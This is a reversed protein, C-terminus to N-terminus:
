PLWVGSGDFRYNTGGVNVVTNEAMAGDAKLYYWITGSQLWGTKMTGNGNLFYWTSGDKIWGTRMAGTEKDMFYWQGGVSIWGTMMQGGAPNLYYWAGGQNLWGTQMAGSGSLFYWISGDKIWGTKMACTEQDFYYWAGGVFQWGTVAKCSGDFYYWTGGFSQWQGCLAYGAGNFYYWQGDIKEWQNVPYSGDALRYWWGNQDSRWKGAEPQPDPQPQPEPEPEEKEKLGLITNSLRIKAIEVESQLAEEDAYVTEAKQLADQLSAISEPTYKGAQELATKAEAIKEQLSSKEAPQLSKVTYIISIGDQYPQGDIQDLVAYYAEEGEKATFTHTDETTYNTDALQATIEKGIDYSSIRFEVVGNKDSAKASFVGEEANSFQLKVGSIPRGKADLINAKFVGSECTAPAAPKVPILYGLVENLKKVQENIQAQTVDEQEYLRAAKELEQTFLDFGSEYDEAKLGSCDDLLKKLQNKNGKNVLHNRKELLATRAQEVATEDAEPDEYVQLAAAYQDEYAKWSTNTYYSARHSEKMNLEERLAAKNPFIKLGAFAHELAAIAANIEEQTKGAAAAKEGAEAATELAQFTSPIYEAKNLTKTKALKEKLVTPDPKRTATSKEAPQLTINMEFGNTVEQGNVKRIYIEGNQEGAEVSIVPFEYPEETCAHVQWIQGSKYARTPIFYAVSTNPASYENYAGEMTDNRHLQFKFARGFLNGNSDKVTVKLARLVSSKTLAATAKSLAETAQDAQLQTADVNELVAKAEELAKKYPKWSDATYQTEHEVEKTAEVAKQLNDKNVYEAAPVVVITYEELGTVMKGNVTFTRGDKTKYDIRAPSAVYDSGKIEVYTDWYDDNLRHDITLLGNEDSVYEKTGMAHKIFSINPLPNGKKDVVHIELRDLVPVKVNDADWQPYADPTGGNKVKELNSQIAQIKESPIYTKQEQTLKEYASLSKEVAEVDSAKMNSISFNAFLKNIDIAAFLDEKSTGEPLMTRAKDLNTLTALAKINTLNPNGTLDLARLNHLKSIPTADTLQNHSVIFSEANSLASLDPLSSIQNYSLNIYKLNKLGSLMEVNKIENRSLSLQTLKKMGSLASVDQIKNSDLYLIEMNTLKKLKDINTLNDNPFQVNKLKTLNEIPSLDSLSAGEKFATSTIELIEMNTAYQLGSLDDIWYQQKWKSFNEPHNLQAYSLHKVEEMVEPTIKVHEKVANLSARVAWHLAPNKVVEEAGPVYVDVEELGGCNTARVETEKTFWVSSIMLAAALAASLIRKGTKRKNKM